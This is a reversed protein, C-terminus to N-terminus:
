VRVDPAVLTTLMDAAKAVLTILAGIVVKARTACGLFVCCGNMRSRKVVHESGNRRWRHSRGDATSTTASSIVRGRVTCTTASALPLCRWDLVIAHRAVTTVHIRDNANAVLAQITGVKIIAISAHDVLLCLMVFRDSRGTFSVLEDSEM